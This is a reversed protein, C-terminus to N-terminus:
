FTVVAGLAITKIEATDTEAKNYEGVLTLNSNLSHFVAFTKNTLDLDSANATSGGDNEGRSLVLRTGNITYSAQLLKGDVEGDSTTLLNGLGATGVGDAKFGSATLALGAFKVNVGYSVGKATMADGALKSEQNMYGLWGKVSGGDFDTAYSAEAEIRPRSEESAADRKAPDMLGVALNFGGMDPTRYTIQSNPFPYLYGAGINGFSVNNGDDGTTMTQGFGLLIEDGLINSRNFLAFDKGILIQGFSGDVTAYFQRTDILSDTLNSNGDNITAWFSSRGGLKLDDVQKSFNFGIVNPLFGMKIRAQSVDNAGDASSDSNVYFTNFLGDVSFTTEEHDYLTIAASAQSSIAVAAALPLLKAINNNKM